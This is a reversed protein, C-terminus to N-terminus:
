RGAGSPAHLGRIDYPGTMGPHTFPTYWAGLDKLALHPPLPQAIGATAKALWDTPRQVDRIVPAAPPRHSPETGAVYGASAPVGAWLSASFGFAALARIARGEHRM